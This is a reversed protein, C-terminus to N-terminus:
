FEDDFKTELIKLEDIAKQKAQSNHELYQIITEFLKIKNITKQKTDEIGIRNARSSYKTFFQFLKEGSNYDYKKAIENGNERTITKGTYYYILAIERLKLKSKDRRNGSQERFEILWQLYNYFVTIRMNNNLAENSFGVSFGLDGSNFLTKDQMIKQCESSKILVWNKFGALVSNKQNLDKDILEQTIRIENNLYETKYPSGDYTEQFIKIYTKITMEFATDYAKMKYKRIQECAQETFLGNPAGPVGQGGPLRHDIKDNLWDDFTYKKM